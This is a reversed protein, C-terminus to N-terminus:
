NLVKKGSGYQGASNAYTETATTTVVIGSIVLTLALVKIM